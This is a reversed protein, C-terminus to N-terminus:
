SVGVQKKGGRKKKTTSKVSFFARFGWKVAAFDGIRTLVVDPLEPRHRRLSAIVQPALVLNWARNTQTKKLPYIYRTIGNYGHYVWTFHLGFIFIMQMTENERLFYTIQHGRSFHTSPKSHNIRFLQDRKSTVLDKGLWVIWGYLWEM